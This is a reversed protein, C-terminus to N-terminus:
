IIHSHRGVGYVSASPTLVKQGGDMILMFYTSLFSSGKISAECM